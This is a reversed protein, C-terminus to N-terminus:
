TNTGTQFLLSSISKGTQVEAKVEMTKKKRPKSDKNEDNFTEETLQSQSGENLSLSATVDQSPLDEPYHEDVVDVKTSEESTDKFVREINQEALATSSPISRKEKAWQKELWGRHQAIVEEFSCEETDNPYVTNLDVKIYEIKGTKPNLIEQLSM